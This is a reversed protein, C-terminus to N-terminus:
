IWKLRRLVMDKSGRSYDSSAIIVAIDDPRADGKPYLLSKLGSAAPAKQNSTNSKPVPNASAQQTGDGIPRTQRRNALADLAFKQAVLDFSRGGPSRNFMDSVVSFYTKRVDVNLDLHHVDEGGLGGFRRAYVSHKGPALDITLFEDGRIRGAAVGDVEIEYGGGWIDPTRNGTIPNSNYFFVVLKGFNDAAVFRSIDNHRPNRDTAKEAIACGTLALTVALLLILHNSRTM